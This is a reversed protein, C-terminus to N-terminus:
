RIDHVDKNCRRCACHVRLSDCRKGAVARGVGIATVSHASIDGKEDSLENVLKYLKQYVYV